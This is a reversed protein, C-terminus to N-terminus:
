KDRYAPEIFLWMAVPFAEKAPIVFWNIASKLEEM